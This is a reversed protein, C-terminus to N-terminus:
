NHRHITSMDTNPTMEEHMSKKGYDVGLLFGGVGCVVAVVVLSGICVGLNVTKLQKM